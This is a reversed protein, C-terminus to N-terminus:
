ALEGARYCTHRPAVEVHEVERVIGCQKHLTLRLMCACHKHWRHGEPETLADVVRVEHGIPPHVGEGWVPWVIVDGPRLERAEVRHADLTSFADLIELARTATDSNPIETTM